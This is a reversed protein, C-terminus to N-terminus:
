KGERFIDATKNQRKDFKYQAVVIMYLFCAFAWSSVDNSKSLIM